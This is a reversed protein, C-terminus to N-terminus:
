LEYTTDEGNQDIKKYGLSELRRCLDEYRFGVTLLGDMHKHEFMIRKPKVTFNYNMLITYDHGETDTHLLDIETIAYESVIQNITTTKVNIKDVILYPLHGLAHDKNISAIQSAWFPLNSFDNRESPVTMEIEGIFNSGAKNIFIINENNGYKEKYNRKLQEFLFPVPEVLILKTHEDITNFIPDNITNGVHSGIQIITKGMINNNSVYRKNRVRM